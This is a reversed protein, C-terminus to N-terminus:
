SARRSSSPTSHGIRPAPTPPPLPGLAPRAHGERAEQLPGTPAPSLGARELELTRRVFAFDSELEECAARSARCILVLFDEGFPIVDVTAQELNRADSAQMRVVSRGRVRAGFRGTLQLHPHLLSFWNGVADAAAEVTTGPELHELLSLRM